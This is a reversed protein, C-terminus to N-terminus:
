SNFWLSIFLISHAQTAIFFNRIEYNLWILYRFPSFSKLYWNKIVEGEFAKALNTAAKLNEEKPPSYREKIKYTLTNEKRDYKWSGKTYEKNESSDPSNKFIFDGNLSAGFFSLWNKLFYLKFM